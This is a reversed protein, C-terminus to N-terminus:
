MLCHIVQYSQVCKIAYEYNVKTEAQCKTYNIYYMIHLHLQITLHDTQLSQQSHELVPPRYFRLLANSFITNLCNMNVLKTIESKSYVQKNKYYSIHKSLIMFLVQIFTISYLLLPLLTM